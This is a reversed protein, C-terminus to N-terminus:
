RRAGGPLDPAPAGTMHTSRGADRNDFRIVCLGHGALARCLSVPWHILQAAVGMIMLVPPAAPDGFRQYVVDIGTPGVATVLQEDPTETEESRDM